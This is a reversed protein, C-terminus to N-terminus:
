VKLKSTCALGEFTHSTLSRWGNRNNKFGILFRDADSSKVTVQKSSSVTLLIPMVKGATDDKNQIKMHM